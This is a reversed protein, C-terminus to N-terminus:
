FVLRDGHLIPKPPPSRCLCIMLVPALGDRNGTLALTGKVWLQGVAAAGGASRHMPTVLADDAPFRLTDTDPTLLQGLYMSLENAGTDVDRMSVHSQSHDITLLTAEELCLTSLADHYEEEAADRYM